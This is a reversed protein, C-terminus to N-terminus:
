PGMYASSGKGEGNSTGNDRSGMRGRCIRYVNSVRFVFLIVVIFSFVHGRSVGIFGNGRFRMMILKMYRQLRM